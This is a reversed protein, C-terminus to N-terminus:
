RIEIGTITYTKDGRIIFLQSDRLIKTAEGWGEGSPFTANDIATPITIEFEATFTSDCNISIKRPNDINGDSWQKFRYNADIPVATIVTDGCLVRASLTDRPVATGLQVLGMTPDASCLKLGNDEVLQFNQWRSKAEYYAKTGCPVHLAIGSYSNIFQTPLSPIANKTTWKVYIDKLSFGPFLSRTGISTVSVPITLSALSPCNFFLGGSLTQLNEPLIVTELSTCNAFVNQAISSVMPPLVLSKISHCSSFAFSELATVQNLLISTFSCCGCFAYKKITTVGDPIALASVLSGNLYLNGIKNTTVGTTNHNFPASTYDSLDISCWAALDSIYLNNLKVCNRFASDGVLTLSAPITIATLLSDKSFAFGGIKTVGHEILVTKISKQQANWPVDNETTWDAMAGTGSITLTSDTTNLSWTVNSENGTAGCTGSYTEAHLMCGLLSMSLLIAALIYHKYKM